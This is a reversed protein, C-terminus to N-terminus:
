SNLNQRVKFLLTIMHVTFSFYRPPLPRPNNSALIGANV